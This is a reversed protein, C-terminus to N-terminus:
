ARRARRRRRISTLISTVKGSSGSPRTVDLYDVFLIRRRNRRNGFCPALAHRGTATTGLHIHYRGGHRIREGVAPAAAPALREGGKITAITNASSTRTISGLCPEVRTSPVHPAAPSMKTQNM